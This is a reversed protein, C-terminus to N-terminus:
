VTMKCPGVIHLNFDLWIPLSEVLKILILWSLWQIENTSDYKVKYQGWKSMIKCIQLDFNLEGNYNLPWLCLIQLSICHKSLTLFYACHLVLYRTSGVSHNYCHVFNLHVFNPVFNWGIYQHGKKTQVYEVKLNWSKLLNKKKKPHQM